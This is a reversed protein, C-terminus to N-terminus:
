RRKERSRKLAAEVFRSVAALDGICDELAQAQVPDLRRIPAAMIERALRVAQSHVGNLTAEVEDRDPKEDDDYLDARTVAMIIYRRSCALSCARRRMVGIVEAHILSQQFNRAPRCIAALRYTRGMM